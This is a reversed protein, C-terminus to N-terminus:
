DVQMGAAALARWFSPYSKRVVQPDQVALPGYMALPAFAMAMRHDDYTEIVQSAVRVQGPQVEFVGPAVELLDAGFKRLEAQV